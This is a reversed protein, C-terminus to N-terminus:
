AKGVCKDLTAVGAKGRGAKGAQRRPQSSAAGASTSAVATMKMVRSGLLSGGESSLPSKVIVVAVIM